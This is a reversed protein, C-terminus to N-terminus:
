VVIPEPVKGASRLAHMRQYAAEIDRTFKESDFLPATARAEVLRAKLGALREPDRALALALAEYDALSTTILEPMGVADLLSAAVRAAFTEGACTVIPVGAWLADSATTHANYPLTDLFLDAHAHRALHDALLANPAFIIRDPEIGFKAAEYALNDRAAANAEYLWLVSGPVEDLLRMWVSFVAPTIKYTNNFCCFVFGSEPLGCAARSPLTESIRRHRDNPQYCHPLQVIKEDYDAAASLPTVFRDGVVYDIFDAGMSGPYGLFNVQVPAPRLAMIESRAGQTYGKLDVLIDIGDARIRRAAEPNSMREIEVFHDFASVVRRRMDSKDDPSHSYAFIEFKERDHREFMEVALFTTAHNYYDNSLYGIRIRRSPDAPPAPPLKDDREVRVGQAWVRAARLHDKPTMHSSLLLFPGTRTASQALLKAIAAEEQEVNRWQCIQRSANAAGLRAVVNDPEIKLVRNLYALAEPYAKRDLCVSGLNLLAGVHNPDVKLAEGLAEMAEAHRRKELLIMGLNAHLAAVTPKLTAAIKLLALAERDRGGRYANVGEIGIDEPTLAGRQVAEVWVKAADDPEGGSSIIACGLALAAQGNGPQEAVTRLLDDLSGDVASLRAVGAKALPHNPRLALAKEFAERAAARDGMQLLLSGYDALAEVNRPDLATSIRLAGVAEPIRGIQRLCLAYMHQVIPNKPDRKLSAAYLQAAGKHDGAQHLTGARLADKASKLRGGDPQGFAARQGKGM